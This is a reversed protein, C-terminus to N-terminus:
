LKKGSGSRPSTVSVPPCGLCRHLAPDFGPQRCIHLPGADEGVFSLLHQAALRITAEDEPSLDRGSLCNSEIMVINEGDREVSVSGHMPEGVGSKEFRSPVRVRTVDVIVSRSTIRCM